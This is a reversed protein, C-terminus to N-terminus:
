IGRRYAVIKVAASVLMSLVLSAYLASAIWFHEREALTLALSGTVGVGLVIGAVFGGLRDIHRDREDHRELNRLDADTVEAVGGDEGRRKAAIERAVAIRIAAAITALITAAIIAAILIGVNWLLTRQYDIEAVSTDRARGLVNAFYWGPVILMVVAYVWTQREESSM